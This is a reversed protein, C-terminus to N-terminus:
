IRFRCAAGEGRGATNPLASILGSMPRQVSRSHLNIHARIPHGPSICSLNRDNTSDPLCCNQSAKTVLAVCHCPHPSETSTEGQQGQAPCAALAATCLCAAGPATSVGGASSVLNQVYIQNVLYTLSFSPHM